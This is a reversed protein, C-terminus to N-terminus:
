GLLNVYFNIYKEVLDLAKEVDDETKGSLVLINPKKVYQVDSPNQFIIVDYDGDSDIGM